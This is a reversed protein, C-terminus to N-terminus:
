YSCKLFPNCAYSDNSTCQHTGSCDSYTCSQVAAECELKERECCAILSNCSSECWGSGYEGYQRCAARCDHTSACTNRWADYCSPAQASNCCDRCTANEASAVGATLAMGLLLVAICISIIMKVNRKKMKDGKRKTERKSSDWSEM